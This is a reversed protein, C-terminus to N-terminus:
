ACRGEAKELKPNDIFLLPMWTSRLMRDAPGEVAVCVSAGEQVVEIFSFRQHGQPKNYTQMSAFRRFRKGPSAISKSAKMKFIREILQISTKTLIRQDVYINNSMYRRTREHPLAIHSFGKFHSSLRPWPKDHPRKLMRSSIYSVLHCKREILLYKM